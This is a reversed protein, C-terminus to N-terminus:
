VIKKGAEYSASQNWVEAPEFTWVGKLKLGLKEVEAAMNDFFDGSTLFDKVDVKIEYSEMEKAVLLSAKKSGSMKELNKHTHEMLIAGVGILDPSPAAVAGVMISHVNGDPDTTALVKSAKDDNVLKM